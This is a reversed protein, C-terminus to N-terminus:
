PQSPNPNPVPNLNLEPYPQPHAQSLGLRRHWLHHDDTHLRGITRGIRGM